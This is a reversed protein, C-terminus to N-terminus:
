YSGDKIVRCMNRLNGFLHKELKHEIEILPKREIEAHSPMKKLMDFNYKLTLIEGICFILNTVKYQKSIRFTPESQHSFKLCM